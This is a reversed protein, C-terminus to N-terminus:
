RRTIRQMPRVLFFYLSLFSSCHPSFRLHFGLSRRVRTSFEFLATRIPEENAIVIINM